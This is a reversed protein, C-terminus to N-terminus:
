LTDKVGRLLRALEARGRNIRSKVTGVPVKLMESIEEYTFEELDRLIVAERLDESLRLLTRHIKDSLESKELAEGPTDFRAPNEEAKEYEVELSDTQSRETKFKRYHDIMHNRGVRVMWTVLTGSEPRYTGLTRYVKLFIEQTLDEAEDFRGTFRYALNYIRSNYQRVISEWAGHDGALCGKVLEADSTVKL